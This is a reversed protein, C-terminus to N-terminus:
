LEWLAVWLADSSPDGSLVHHELRWWEEGLGWGDIGLELRDDQIDVGATLVVVGEPAVRRDGQMPYPERRIGDESVTHYKETWWESLVTNIFVKLLEPHGQAELWEEVFVSLRAGTVALANMRFARTGSSEAQARYGGAESARWRAQDDWVCGCHACVYTATEPLHGGLEDRDWQVQDWSLVQWEGCDGCPVGYENQDSRDWIVKSRSIGEVGPSTTYFKKRNWFAFTRREGIKLPDGERGASAEYRDIEDGILIRIPRMALGAPSNAGVGTWHGGRFAKHLVTNESDRSRAPAVREALEPTQEIMLALRDKSFAQAMDLNPEITLIPAPDHHVHRGIVNLCLETKGGGQSAGLFLVTETEPDDLADLVPGQWPRSKWRGPSPSTGVPVVRYKEAWGNYGLDPPPRFM